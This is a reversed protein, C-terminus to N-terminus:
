FLSPVLRSYLYPSLSSKLPPFNLNVYSLPSTISFTGNLLSASYSTLATYVPVSVSTSSPAKCCNFTVISIGNSQEPGVSAVASFTTVPSIVTFFRGKCTITFHRMMYM